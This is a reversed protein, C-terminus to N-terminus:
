AAPIKMLLADGVIVSLVMVALWPHWPIPIVTLKPPANIWPLVMLELVCDPQVPPLPPPIRTFPADLPVRMTPFTMIFLERGDAPPPIERNAAPAGSISSLMIRPLLPPLWPPPMVM